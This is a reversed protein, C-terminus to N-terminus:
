DEFHASNEIRFIRQDFDKPSSYFIRRGNVTALLRLYYNGTACNDPIKFSLEFATPSVRKSEGGYPQTNFGRQNDPIQADNFLLSIQLDKIDDINTGDFAVSLRLTDGPKYFPTVRTANQARLPVTALAIAMAIQITTIIRRKMTKKKEGPTP